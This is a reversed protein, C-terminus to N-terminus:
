RKKWGGEDYGISAVLRMMISETRVLRVSCLGDGGAEQLSCHEGAERRLLTEM